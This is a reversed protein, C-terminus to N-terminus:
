GIAGVDIAKLLVEQGITAVNPLGFEPVQECIPGLREAARHGVFTGHEGETSIGLHGVM